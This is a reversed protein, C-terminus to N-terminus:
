PTHYQSQTAHRQMKVGRKGQYSVEGQRLLTEKDDCFTSCHLHM